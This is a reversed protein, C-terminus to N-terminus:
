RAASWPPQGVAARPFIEKASDMLIVQQVNADVLPPYVEVRMSNSTALYADQVRYFQCHTYGILNNPNATSQATVPTCDMLWNGKRIDPSPTGAPWVLTLNVNGIGGPPSVQFGPELTPTNIPRQQYVIVWSQTSSSAGSTQPRQFCYSWTYYGQRQLGSSLANVPLGNTDFYLDDQFSFWRDIDLGPTTSTTIYSPSIRRVPSNAYNTGPPPPGVFTLGANFYYPDVIVPYTPKNPDTALYGPPASNLTATVTPDTRLFRAQAMSDANPAISGCRDDKLARAMNLAGLPFLVLIALTGVGMIFIAVLVELLTVGPRRQKM